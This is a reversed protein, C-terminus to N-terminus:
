SASTARGLRRARRDAHPAPLRLRGSGVQGRAAERGALLETRPLQRRERDAAEARRGRGARRLHRGEARRGLAGRARVPVRHEQRGADLRAALGRLRRRHAAEGRRLRRGPRRLPAPAPRRDLRRSDLKYFLRTFRRPARKKDDEEEYAEDPVRASFVIQTGDPSWDPEGVDDKLETLCQAEGGGMPM